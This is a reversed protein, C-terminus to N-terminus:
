LRGPGRDELCRPLGSGRWAAWCGEGQQCNVWAAPRRCKRANSLWTGSVHGAEKRTIRGPEVRACRRGGGLRPRSGSDGRTSGGRFNCGLCGLVGAFLAGMVTYRGLTPLEALARPM